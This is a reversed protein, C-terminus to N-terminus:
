MCPSHEPQMSSKIDTLLATINGFLPTSFNCVEVNVGHSMRIIVYPLAPYAMLPCLFLNQSCEGVWKLVM